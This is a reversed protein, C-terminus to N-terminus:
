RRPPGSGCQRCRRDEAESRVMNQLGRWLAMPSVRLVFLLTLGILLVYVFVGVPRDVLALMARNLLDGMVGGTAASGRRLLGFLGCVM